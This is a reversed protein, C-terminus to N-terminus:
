PNDVLSKQRYHRDLTVIMAGMKQKEPQLVETIGEDELAKATVKGVAVALVRDNFSGVLEDKRDGGFVNLVQTKSTFVVADVTSGIVEDKLGDVVSPDPQEFSYPQSLYVSYGKDEIAKKWKADDQNYAQLFIDGGLGEPLLSLLKAMTGDESLVTPSLDQEKLWDVTKQGRIALRSKALKNIYSEQIGAKEASNSLTRAGIGTTLIVWDFSRSLFTEVDSRSTEESLNQTGQASYVVPTGNFNRILKSIEESRRDAALAVRKGILGSM